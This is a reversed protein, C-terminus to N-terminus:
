LHVKYRTPTEYEHCCIECYTTELSGAKALKRKFPSSTLPPPPPPVEPEMPLFSRIEGILRATSESQNDLLQGIRNFCESFCKKIETNVSLQGELHAVIKGLM